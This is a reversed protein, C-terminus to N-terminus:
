SQPNAGCAVLGNSAGCWCEGRFSRGELAPRFDGPPARPLNQGFLFACFLARGRHIARSLRLRVSAPLYFCSQAEIQGGAM